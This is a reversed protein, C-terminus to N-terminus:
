HVAHALSAEACSNGSRFTVAVEIQLFMSAETDGDARSSQALDPLGFSGAPVGSNVVIGGIRQSSGRLVFEDPIRATWARLEETPELLRRPSLLRRGLNKSAISQRYAPPLGTRLHFMCTSAGQVQVDPMHRMHLVQVISTSHDAYRSIHSLLFCIEHPVGRVRTALHHSESIIGSGRGGWGRKFVLPDGLKAPSGKIKTAKSLFSLVDRPDTPGRAASTALSVGRSGFISTQCVGGKRASFQPNALGHLFTTSYRVMVGVTDSGWWFESAISKLFGSVALFHLFAQM